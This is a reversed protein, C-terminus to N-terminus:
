FLLHSEITQEFRLSLRLAAGPPGGITETGTGDRLTSVPLSTGAGLTVRQREMRFSGSVLVEAPIRRVQTRGGSASRSEDATLAPSAFGEIALSFGKGLERSVGLGLLGESGFHVDGFREPARLRAGVELAVTFGRLTTALAIGPAFTLGRHSVFSGEQGLPLQVRELVAARLDAVTFDFGAHITPDGISFASTERSRSSAVGDVGTGSLRAALPAVLGLRPGGDWRRDFGVRATVWDSLVPVERGFPDPAAAIV